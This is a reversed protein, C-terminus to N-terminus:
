YPAAIGSGGNNEYYWPDERYNYGPAPQPTTVWRGFEFTFIDIAPPFSTVDFNGWHFFGGGGEDEPLRIEEVPKPKPKPEPKGPKDKGGSVLEVEFADLDCM